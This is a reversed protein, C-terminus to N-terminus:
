ETIEFQEEETLHIVECDNAYTREPLIIVAHLKENNVPLPCLHWVGPNLKVMTGKPVYFAKTLHTVPTKASAPAVHVIADDDLPLIIEWTYTHYEIDTIVMKEPKKVEISSFAVPISAPATIPDPFFRHLEGNLSFGNPHLHDTYQGFPAFTEVNLPEIIIQKM